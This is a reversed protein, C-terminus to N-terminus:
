SIEGLLYARITEAHCQEPSCWYFLRLIKHKDYIADLRTLENYVQRDIGTKVMDLLWIVYAECIRTREKKVNPVLSARRMYFPNGFVSKRDVRVDYPESLKTHRMNMIEIM